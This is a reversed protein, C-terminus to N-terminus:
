VKLSRKSTTKRNIDYFRIHLFLAYSLWGIAFGGVIDLPAHIGLYIRSLGVGVVWVTIIWHYKKPLYHGITFAMAVALAMHGSPFGPGRVIYDRNVVELFLDNPRDRGWIDKAFGSLQYALTGTLLLRTLKRYHQKILFFLLLLGLMHISGAQTVVFFVPQLFDPLNYIANFVSVEWDAIDQGRSAYVSVIFLGLALLAQRTPSLKDLYKNKSLVKKTKKM